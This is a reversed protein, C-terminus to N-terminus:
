KPPTEGEGVAVDSNRLREGSNHPAQLPSPSSQDLALMLRLRFRGAAIYLADHGRFMFRWDSVTAIWLGNEKHKGWM